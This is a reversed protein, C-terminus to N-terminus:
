QKIIKVMQRISSTELELLYIGKNLEEINISSVTTGTRLCNGNISYIKYNLSKYIENCNCILIDNEM